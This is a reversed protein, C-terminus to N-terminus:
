AHKPMSTKPAYINFTKVLLFQNNNNIHMRLTEDVNRDKLQNKLEFVKTSM